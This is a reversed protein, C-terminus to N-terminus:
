YERIGGGSTVSRSPAVIRAGRDVTLITMPGPSYVFERKVIQVYQPNPDNSAAGNLGIERGAIKTILDGIEYVLHIGPLKFTCDLEATGYQDRTDEAFDQIAIRDDREDAGSTSDALVSSYDEDLEETSSYVFQHKFKDPKDIVLVIDRASVAFPSKGAAGNIRKDGKIVGTIRLKADDGADILESPPSDGTFLIAIQDPMVFPQGFSPPVIQWTAGDDISYELHIQRRQPNDVDGDLTFPHGINRRHPVVGTPFVDSLDPPDGIETREGTYDGAENAVWLRWVYPNDEYDSDPDSKTLQSASLADKDAPWSKWLPLTVEAEEVGGFVQVVNVSDGIRRNIRYDNCNSEDLDLESAPAQFMLERSPGVGKQFVQILPKDNGEGSTRAYDLYWNFGLPQLLRDLYAPLYLGMPLRVDELKVVDFINLLHNRTPNEILTENPNCAWCMALVADVLEWEEAIQGSVTESNSTLAAEPHIWLYADSGDKRKLNSKNFLTKGDITPNFVPPENTQTDPDSSEVGKWNQGYFPDGFHYPRMQSQATLAETQANVVESETVYDGLHLRPFPATGEPVLVDIMKAFNAPQSRNILPSSVRYELDAFDLSQGGASQVVRVATADQTYNTGTPAGSDSSVRTLLKPYTFLKAGTTNLADTTTM